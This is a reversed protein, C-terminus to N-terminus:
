DDCAAIRVYEELGSLLTRIENYDLATLIFPFVLTKPM